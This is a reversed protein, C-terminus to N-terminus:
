TILLPQELDSVHQASAALTAEAARATLRASERCHHKDPDGEGSRAMSGAAMLRRTHRVEVTHPSSRPVMTLLELLPEPSLTRSPPKRKAAVVAPAPSSTSVIRRPAISSSASDQPSTRWSDSGGDARDGGVGGEGTAPRGLVRSEECVIACCDPCVFVAVLHPGFVEYHYDCVGRRRLARM